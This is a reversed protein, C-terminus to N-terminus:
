KTSCIDTLKMSQHRIVNVKSDVVLVRQQLPTMIIFYTVISLRIIQNRLCKVKLLFINIPKGAM